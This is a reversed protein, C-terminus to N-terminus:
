KLNRKKDQLYWITNQIQPIFNDDDMHYMCIILFDILRDFDEAITFDYSLIILKVLGKTTM